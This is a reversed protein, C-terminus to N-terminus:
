VNENKWPKVNNASKNPKNSPVLQPDIVVAQVVDEGRLNQNAYLSTRGPPSHVLILMM